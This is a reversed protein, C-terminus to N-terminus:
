LPQPKIGAKVVYRRFIEADKRVLAGLEQPSLTEPQVAIDILAKSVKESKVAASIERNLRAIIDAPTGLPAVTAFWFYLMFDPYGAERMSPVDPLLAERPGAVALIRVKGAKHLAQTSSISAFLFQLRGAMLDTLSQGTGKYPIHEADFGGIDALMLGGIHSLSGDDVSGYNMRTGSKALDILERVTRAGPAPQGVLVYYTNDVLAVPALDKFPDYPLNQFVYPATAYAAPTGFGLTYGDPAAKAVAIAAITASAGARNEVIVPQGLRPGVADAILRAVVDTSTGAAFGVYFRVPKEPWKPNSPSQASAAGAALLCALLSPALRSHIM